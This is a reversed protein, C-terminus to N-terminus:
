ASVAYVAVYGLYQITTTIAKNLLGKRLFLRSHFGVFGIFEVFEVSGVRSLYIFLRSM